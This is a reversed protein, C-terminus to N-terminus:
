RGELFAALQSELEPHNKKVFRTFAAKNSSGYLVKDGVTVLFSDDKKALIASAVPASSPTSEVSTTQPATPAPVPVSTVEVSESPTAAAESVEPAPPIPVSAVPPVPAPASEAMVPPKGTIKPVPVGPPPEVPRPIKSGLAVAPRGQPSGGTSITERSMDGGAKSPTLVPRSLPASLLPGKAPINALGLAVAIEAFTKGQDFMEKAKGFVAPDDGLEKKIVPPLEPLQPSKKIKEFALGRQRLNALKRGVMSGKVLLNRLAEREDRSKQDRELVAKEAEPLVDSDTSVLTLRDPGVYRSYYEDYSFEKPRFIKSGGNPSSLHLPFANHNIFKRLKM